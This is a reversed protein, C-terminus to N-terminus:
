RSLMGGFTQKDNTSDIEVGELGQSLTHADGGQALKIRLRVENSSDAHRLADEYSIEGAHYLEVLSQDFTRMGLQNSDRMLEKLKHVEGQRIYDQALPTGLLVEVALRRSKGDPTPILQQAVIGKLNLSLDMFLASRRDEPFFHLIRDLAQNANNAHLTCLCLHGTESFNIAHEMTERTRVEGIMIVDPAQRLTNKLANEWNDTDIGLERQTIICGEHKHVYEIPDEITIIHGTSNQNRYGIMSALSTSKGTGTGGVFIIIGRKTMALQKIIPPLSLEEPTPIKSEIRRLVMGVCNRQYFCSVRFRGVGSASIAFQCEHTKEFEERQAPTMVNLVMDRSQQASLPSQTIPVIRGQVKMSPAVGATIFLDSAQKHVMLKLFSTFDFESM